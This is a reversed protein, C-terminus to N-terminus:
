APQLMPQQQTAQLAMFCDDQPHGLVTLTEEARTLAVYFLRLREEADRPSKWGAKYLGSKLAGIANDAVTRGILLGHGPMSGLAPSYQLLTADSKGRGGGPAEGWAVIVHKFELGKAGFATMLQLKNKNKSEPLVDSEALLAQNAELSDLNDASPPVLEDPQPLRANPSADIQILVEALYRWAESAKQCQKFEATSCLTRILQAWTPWLTQADATEPLPWLGLPTMYQTLAQMVTAPTYTGGGNVDGGLADEAAAPQNISRKPMYPTQQVLEALSLVGARLPAPWAKPLIQERTIGELWSLERPKLRAMQWLQRHSLKQSLLRVLATDDHPYALLRLAAWWTKVAPQSFFGVDAALQVGIGHQELLRGVQALKTRKRALVVIDKPAIGQALLAQVTELILQNEHKRYDEVTLTNKEATIPDTQDNSPTSAVPPIVPILNVQAPPANTKHAILPPEEPALMQALPNALSLIVPKSRYNTTLAITCCQAAAVGQTILRMNEPQAFRFGYISQKADGVLTLRPSEGEILKAILRLQANNTDQFEDVLIAKFQAKLRQCFADDATLLALTHLILDDYDVQQQQLLTYQYVAYYAAVLALTQAELPAFAQLATQVSSGAAGPSDMQPAVYNKQKANYRAFYPAELLPKIHTKYWESPMDPTQCAEQWDASTWPALTLSWDAALAALTDGEPAPAAPHLRALAANFQQTQQQATAYFAKPCLGATKIRQILEPLHALLKQAPLAEPWQQQLAQVSLIAPDLTGDLGAHALAETCDAWRNHYIASQLRDAHRKQDIETLITFQPSTPDLGTYQQTLAPDLKLIQLCAGHITTIWSPMNADPELTHKAAPWHQAIRSQLEKAAKHTFTIALIHALPEALGQEALTRAIRAVRQAMVETKGTGAGALIQVLAELPADVAHQQEPNLSKHQSLVTNM